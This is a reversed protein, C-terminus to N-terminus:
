PPHGRGYRIALKSEGCQRRVISSNHIFGYTSAQRRDYQGIGVAIQNPQTRQPGITRRDDGKQTMVASNKAALVDRLQAFVLQFEHLLSCAEGGNARTARVVGPHEAFLGSDRERQQDVLLPLRIAGGSQAM